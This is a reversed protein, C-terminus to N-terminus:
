YLFGFVYFTHTTGTGTGTVDVQIIDAAAYSKIKVPTSNPVPQLIVADYQADLNSLTQTGLFDTLASSKGITITPASADASAVVIVSHLVCRKGTPVTFLTTQGTGTFSVTASGLLTIAKEKLAAM